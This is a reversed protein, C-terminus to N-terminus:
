GDGAERRFPRYPVGGALYFKDFFEVYHLRLAQIAPAYLGMLLNLGHFFLAAAIGAALPELTEGFFNALYALYISAAGFGMLRAYSLVHGSLKLLDLPARWREGLILLIVSLGLMGGGAVTWLPLGGALAGWALSAGGTLFLLKGTLLPFEQRRRRRIATRFGLLVGVALHGVGIGVAAALFLPLSEERRIWGGLGSLGVREPPLGFYEGFCVGLLVAAASSFAFASALDRIPPNPVRARVGLAIGLLLAGYGADGVMIGFFLPFFLALWPTPDISGYRPLSLLRTLREFGRLLRPNNLSVPVRDLDEVPVAGEELLHAPGIGKQLRERLDPLPGRPVWGHILFAQGTGDFSASASLRALRDTLERKAAAIAAGHVDSLERLRDEAEAIEGPLVSTRQLIGKLAEVFSRDAYDAPPRIEPVGETRLLERLEPDLDRPYILLCALTEPDIRRVLLEDRGGTVSSVAERLLNLPSDDPT